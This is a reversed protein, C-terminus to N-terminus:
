PKGRRGKFAALKAAVDPLKVMVDDVNVGRAHAAAVAEVVAGHVPHPRRFSGLRSDWALRTEAGL